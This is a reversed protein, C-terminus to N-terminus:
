RSLDRWVQLRSAGDRSQLPWHQRHRRRASAAENNM